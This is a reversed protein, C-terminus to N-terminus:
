GWCHKYLLLDRTELDGNRVGTSHVQQPYNFSLTRLFTRRLLFFSSGFHVLPCLLTATYELMGQMKGKRSTLSLSYSLFWLSAMPHTLSVLSECCIWFLQPPHCLLLDALPPSKGTEKNLCKFPEGSLSRHRSSPVPVSGM